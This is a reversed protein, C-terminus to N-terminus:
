TFLWQKLSFGASLAKRYNEYLALHGVGARPLDSKKLRRFFPTLVDEFNKVTYDGGYRDSVREAVNTFLLTLAKFLASNAINEEAGHLRLGAVCAELYANFVAYVDRPEADVFASEISKLAANFTVRSIKGKRRESASLLGALVSDAESSFLDFVNHLLAEAATETESLRRIDLLLEPPVPRQKTNIDMFLRCEEARSLKNYVVVPVKVSRAALNFGYVRHQGDIILFSRKDKKFHLVGARRDYHLQAAPQASLIIASPVTGFGSDIYDAIDRARRKDLLRQFGDVPNDLRADVTCTAALVDSPLVLSYFRHRGQTVMLAADSVFSDDHTAAAPAKAGGGSTESVNAARSSLETQELAVPELVAATSDRDM